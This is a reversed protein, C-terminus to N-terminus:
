SPGIISIPDGARGTEGTSDRKKDHEYTDPAPKANTMDGRLVYVHPTHWPQKNDVLNFSQKEM